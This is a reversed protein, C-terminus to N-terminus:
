HGVAVGCRNCNYPEGDKIPWGSVSQEPARCALHYVRKRASWLLIHVKGSEHSDPNALFRRNTDRAPM